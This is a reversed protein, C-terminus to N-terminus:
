TRTVAKAAFYAKRFQFIPGFLHARKMVLSVIQSFNTCKASIEACLFAYKTLVQFCAELISADFHCFVRTFNAM